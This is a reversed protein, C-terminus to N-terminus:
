ERRFEWDCIPLSFPSPGSSYPTNIERNGIPTLVTGGHEDADEVDDSSPTEGGGGVNRDESPAAQRRTAIERAQRGKEALFAERARATEKRELEGALCEDTERIVDDLLVEVEGHEEEIHYSTPRV